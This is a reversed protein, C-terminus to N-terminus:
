APDDARTIRRAYQQWNVERHVRNMPFMRHILFTLVQDSTVVFSGPRSSFFLVDGKCEIDPSNSRWANITELDRFLFLQETDGVNGVIPLKWGTEALIALMMPMPEVTAYTTETLKVTM